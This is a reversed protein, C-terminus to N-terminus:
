WDALEEGDARLYTRVWRYLLWGMGFFLLGFGVPLSFVLTMTPLTFIYFGPPLRRLARCFVVYLPRHDDDRLPGSANVTIV